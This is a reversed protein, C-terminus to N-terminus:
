STQYPWQHSFAVKMFEELDESYRRKWVYGDAPSWEAVEDCIAEVDFDSVFDGLAPVIALDIFETRTTM